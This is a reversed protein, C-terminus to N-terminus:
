IHCGASWRGRMSRAECRFLGGGDKSSVAKVVKPLWAYRCVFTEHGSYRSTPKIATM